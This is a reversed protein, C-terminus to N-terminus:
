ATRPSLDGAAAQGAVQVAGLVVAPVLRRRRALFSVHCTYRLPHVACLQQVLTNLRKVNDCCNAVADQSRKRRHTPWAHGSSFSGGGGPCKNARACDSMGSNAEVPALTHCCSLLCVWKLM